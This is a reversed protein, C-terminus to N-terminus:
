YWDRCDHELFHWHREPILNYIRDSPNHGYSALTEVGGCSLWLMRERGDRADLMMEDHNGRLAILNGADYLEILRAMVLNSDPGRDAYDGLAIIRDDAVPAVLRLLAELANFCGHIDGIALTRM